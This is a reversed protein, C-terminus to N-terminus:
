NKTVKEAAGKLVEGLDKAQVQLSELQAKMFASQLDSVEKLDKAHALNQALDFAAKINAQAHHMTKSAISSASEHMTKASTEAMNGAKQAATLLGDMAKRAQEVSRDAFDRLENPIELGPPLGAPMDDAKKPMTANEQPM